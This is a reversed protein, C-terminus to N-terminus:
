FFSFRPMPKASKKAKKSAKKKSKPSAGGRIYTDYDPKKQEEKKKSFRQKIASMKAGISTKLSRGFSGVRSVAAKPARTIWAEKGDAARFWGKGGAQSRRRRSSSKKASMRMRKSMTM